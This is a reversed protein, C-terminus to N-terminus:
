QGPFKKLDRATGRYAMIVISVVLGLMFIALLSALILSSHACIFLISSPVILLVLWLMTLVAAKQHAFNLTM